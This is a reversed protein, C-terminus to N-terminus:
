SQPISIAIRHNKCYDSKLMEYRAFYYLVPLSGKLVSGVSWKEQNKVHRIKFLQPFLQPNSFGTLQPRYKVIAGLM